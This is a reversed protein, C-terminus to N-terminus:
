DHETQEGALTAYVARLTQYFLDPEDWGAYQAPIPTAALDDDSGGRDLADAALREVDLLYDRLATVDELTGIPGHGPVVLRPELLAIRELIRIWSRYDDQWISPHSRVFLLDGLFAVHEEPLFLFADSATHGGGYTLLEARRQEGHLVLCSNFTLDPLRLAIKPMDEVLARTTRLELELLHRRTPDQAEVIRQAGEHLYEQGHEGIDKVLHLGRTAILERTGDTAIVIAEPFVQNGHIHDGNYHSNIVYAAPRGTLGEAAARLDRAARLTLFTDFILTKDGLDVIGANSASGTGPVAIAAFASDAVRELTFHPSASLADRQMM